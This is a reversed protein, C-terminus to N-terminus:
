LVVIDATVVMGGCRQARINTFDVGHWLNAGATLGNSAASVVLTSAVSAMNNTANIASVAAISTAEGLDAVAGLVRAVQHIPGQQGSLLAGLILVSLGSFTKLLCASSKWLRSVLSLSNPRARSTYGAVAKAKPTVNSAPTPVQVEVTPSMLKNIQEDRWQRKQYPTYHDPAPPVLFRNEKRRLDPRMEVSDARSRSM